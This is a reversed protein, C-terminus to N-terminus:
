LIKNIGESERRITGRPEEDVDEVMLERETLKEDRV